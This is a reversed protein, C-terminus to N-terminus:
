RPLLPKSQWPQQSEEEGDGSMGLMRLPEATDRVQAWCLLTEM